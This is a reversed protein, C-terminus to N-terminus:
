LEWPWLKVPEVKLQGAIAGSKRGADELFRSADAVVLVRAPDLEGLERSLRYHHQRCLIEEIVEEPPTGERARGEALLVYCPRLSRDPPVHGLLSMGRLGSRASTEAIAEAATRADLKEGTLDVTQNRGLFRLCPVRGRHGTVVLRDPIVYRLLGSGTSLVPEVEQGEEIQWSFHLRGTSLCRFEFFHSRYALAHEGQFPITVVGETAWLGKGEFQVRPFLRRLEEAWLASPGSMWCSVLALRPWLAALVEPQLRGDWSRLLSRARASCEPIEAVGEREEALRRLLSLLFAPSWVSVFSLDERSVLHALTLRLSAELTPLSAVDGPVAMTKRLAARKWAPFLELDDTSHVLSRLEQPLWSLSWYHSGALIAPHRLSTDFLWPSAARDFDELLSPTYPIWKRASTSGSTPEYRRCRDATPHLIAEDPAARQRDV